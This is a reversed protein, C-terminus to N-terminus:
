SEASPLITALGKFLAVLLVTSTRKYTLMNEIIYTTLNSKTGSSLVVSM